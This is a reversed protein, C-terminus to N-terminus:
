EPGASPVKVKATFIFVAIAAGLPGLLLGSVFWSWTTTGGTSNILRICKAMSILAWVWFIFACALSAIFLEQSIFSTDKASIISYSIFGLVWVLCGALIINRRKLTLLANRAKELTPELSSM